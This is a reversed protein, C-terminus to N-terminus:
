HALSSDDQQLISERLLSLMVDSTTDGEEEFRTQSRQKPTKLAEYLERPVISILCDVVENISVNGYEKILRSTVAREGAALAIVQAHLERTVEIGQYDALTGLIMQERKRQSYSDISNYDNSKSAAIFVERQQMIGATTIYHGRHWSLTRGIQAAGTEYLLDLYWQAVAYKDKFYQYFTSKGVGAGACIASVTVKDIPTASLCKGLSEFIRQKTTFSKSFPREQTM